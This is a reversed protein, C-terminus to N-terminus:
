CCTPRRARDRNGAPRRRGTSGPTAPLCSPTAIGAACAPAPPTRRTEPRRRPHRRLQLAQAVQVHSVNEVALELGGGEDVCYGAKARLGPSVQPAYRLRPQPGRVEKAGTAARVDDGALASVVFKRQRNPAPRLIMNPPKRPWTRVARLSAARTLGRYSLRISCRNGLGLAGTRTRAPTGDNKRGSDWDAGYPGSNM